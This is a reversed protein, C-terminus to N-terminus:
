CWFHLCGPSGQHDLPYSEESGIYPAQSSSGMHQLKFFFLRVHWLLSRLDWMGCSCGLVALYICTHTHAWYSLQTQSKTVGHITVWWAGRDMPDELCSYQLPDCKSRWLHSNSLSVLWDSFDFSQIIWSYSVRPLDFSHHCCLSWHNVPALTLLLIFLCFVFLM